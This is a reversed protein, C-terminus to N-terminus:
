EQLFNLNAKLAFLPPGRMPLISDIVEMTGHPCKPCADPNIKLKELAITKWSVTVKEWAQNLNV